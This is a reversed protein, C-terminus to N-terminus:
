RHEAPQKDLLEVFVDELSAGTIEFHQLLSTKQISMVTRLATQQDKLTFEVSRNKFESKVAPIKQLKERLSKTMKEFTMWLYYPWVTKAKVEEVTGLAIVRGHNLIALSTCLEEAEELIHTTLVITRGGRSEEKIANLTARKSLPDMGTTAEDLFVVPTEVLFMKAVQVRRRMGGSLDIPQQKLYDQLGFLEVVRGIRSDIENRSLGHFRGFSVLNNRVSLYLEVADDQVVVCINRRVELPEVAVDHGMVAAKGSTPRLLTTLIRLATTKGAGNPGLLGFIEGQQVCFSIDNLAHVPDNGRKKYVKVLNQVEIAPIPM